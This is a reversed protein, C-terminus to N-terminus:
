PNVLIKDEDIYFSGKNPILAIYVGTSNREFIIEMTPNVGTSIEIQLSENPEIEIMTGEPELSVGITIGFKNTLTFGNKEM